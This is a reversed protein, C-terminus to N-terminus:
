LRVERIEFTPADHMVPSGVAASIFKTLNTAIAEWARVADTKRTHTEGSAVIEGNATSRLRWWHTPTAKQTNSVIEVYYPKSTINSM